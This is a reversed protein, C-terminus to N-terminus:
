SANIGLDKEILKRAIPHFADKSKSFVAVSLKQDVRHVARFVPRCFKMRGKVVGTGDDGVVWNAADIAFSKAAPSSPDALAVGYFRLRIEANSSDSLQYLKGLHSVHTSPLASYSQLRELFAIIQNTDFGKLDSAKFGLQSPDSTDRSNNWREALTYAQEALTLDYEMKVPLELGEGYFWANWDISDLAKVKDHGYKEFYSYLHSKWQETTISKGIFTNVYDKVYPLFVDLGGLTRELHLLFNAGKEYPVSSYAEDPDEGREFGIILRQYKPRDSYEKLSDTLAKSGIVFSFGRHAPSHLVQQLLREIYTTWGENLWFHSAEAHTVGNGFWSHTLEHVVVDVLTRDGALLTPTLFTLCANEMGGYPFSPPLVLLDYVGFRYPTVVEEEAALFRGTDESFEWYAADILEPEAWVGCTWDKGDIKPFPRYRVNGCAIALLYSPIPVPQEYSYTVVDKGITKGDHAPGESPPSKRIASLLVPLVSKVKASYKIKVSSTDQLPALARAYIPQCQSFLYPFTKGQTQEKELWQLATCDKTTKYTVKVSISSGSKLDSPLPIHLASGMVADKPKLEYAVIQGHIEASEVALDATDFVVERVGDQKVILNHVAFGSIVKQQFDVNWDFYVHETSIQLYNSQSTPDPM